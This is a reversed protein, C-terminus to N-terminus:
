VAHVIQLLYPLFFAFIMCLYNDYVQVAASNTILLSFKMNLIFFCKLTFLGPFM